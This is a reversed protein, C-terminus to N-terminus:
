LFSNRLAFKDPDGRIAGDGDIMWIGRDFYELMALVLDGISGLVVDPAQTDDNQTYVAVPQDVGGTCDFYVRPKEGLPCLWGDIGWIEVLMARFFEYNEVVYEL